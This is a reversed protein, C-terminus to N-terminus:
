TLGEDTERLELISAIPVWIVPQRSRELFRLRLMGHEIGLVEVKDVVSPNRATMLKMVQGVLQAQDRVIMENM